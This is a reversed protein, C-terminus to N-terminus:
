GSISLNRDIEFSKHGLNPENRLIKAGFSVIQAWFATNKHGVMWLFYGMELSILGYIGYFGQNELIKPVNIASFLLNRPIKPTYCGPIEDRFQGLIASFAAYKQLKHGYIM